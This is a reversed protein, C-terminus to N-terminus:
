RIMSTSHLYTSDRMDGPAVLLPLRIQGCPVSLLVFICEEMLGQEAELGEAGGSESELIEVGDM